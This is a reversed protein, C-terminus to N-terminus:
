GNVVKSYNNNITLQTERQKEEELAELAKKYEGPIVKVFNYKENEWNDLIIKARQSSTYRSHNEILSHLSEFEPEDEIEELDVLEKNVLREFSNEPNWVYAIGGSMGAAFNRGTKGLVVM